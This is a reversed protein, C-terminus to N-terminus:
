MKSFANPGCDQILRKRDTQFSPHKVSLTELASTFMLRVCLNDTRIWTTMNESHLLVDVNSLFVSFHVKDKGSLNRPISLLAGM